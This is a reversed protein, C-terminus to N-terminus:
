GAEVPKAETAVSKFRSMPCPARSLFLAFLSHNKFPPTGASNLFKPAIKASHIRHEFFDTM